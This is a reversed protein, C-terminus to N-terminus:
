HVPGDPVSIVSLQLGLDVALSTVDGMLDDTAPYQSLASRIFEAMKLGLEGQAGERDKNLYIQHADRFFMANLLLLGVLRMNRVDQQTLAENQIPEDSM